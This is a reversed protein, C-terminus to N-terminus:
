ETNSVDLQIHDCMDCSSPKVSTSTLWLKSMFAIKHAAIRTGYLNYLNGATISTHLRSFRVFDTSQIRMLWENTELQDDANNIFQKWVPKHPLFCGDNVYMNMLFNLNYKNLLSCIDRVYGRISKTQNYVFQMFTRM